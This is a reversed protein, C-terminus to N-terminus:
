CARSGGCGSASTRPTSGRASRSRRSRRRPRLEAIERLGIVERASDRYRRALAAASGGARGRRVDRANTGPHPGRDAGDRRHRPRRRADPPPDRRDLARDHERDLSQDQRPSSSRACSGGATTQTSQERRSASRARRAHAHARALASATTRASGAREHGDPAVAPFDSTPSRPASTSAPAAASSRSDTRALADDVAAHALPAYEASRHRTALDWIAVLTRRIRRASQDPDAPRPVGADLRRLHDDAPDSGRDGRRRREQRVRDPRLHGSVSTTARRVARRRAGGATGRSRADVDCGRRDAVRCSLEGPRSRRGRLERDHQAANARSSADSGTRSPGEVLVEECAGSRAGRKTRAAVRQVVEVLREIRERKIEEPLQDPM